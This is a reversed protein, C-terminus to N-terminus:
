RQQRKLIGPQIQRAFHQRSQQRRSSLRVGGLTSDAGFSPEVRERSAPSPAMAVSVVKVIEPYRPSGTGLRNMRGRPAM